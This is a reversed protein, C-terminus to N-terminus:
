IFFISDSQFNINNLIENSKDYAIKLKEEYMFNM